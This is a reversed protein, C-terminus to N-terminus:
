LLHWGSSVHCSNQVLKLCVKWFSQESWEQHTHLIKAWILIYKPLQSTNQGKESLGQAGMRTARSGLSGGVAGRGYQGAFSTSSHKQEWTTPCWFSCRGVFNSTLRPCLQPSILYSVLSNQTHMRHIHVQNCMGIHYPTLLLDVLKASIEFLNSLYNQLHPPM